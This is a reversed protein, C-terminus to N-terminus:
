YEVTQMERLRSLCREYAFEEDLQAEKNSSEIDFLKALEVHAEIVLNRHQYYLTDVLLIFRRLFDRRKMSLQPVNRLIITTYKQGIAAYDTSGRADECLEEFGFQAVGHSQKKVPM